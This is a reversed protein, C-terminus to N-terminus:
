RPVDTCRFARHDITSHEPSDPMVCVSNLTVAGAAGSTCPNAPQLAALIECQRKGSLVTRLCATKTTRLRAFHPRSVGSVLNKAVGGPRARQERLSGIV